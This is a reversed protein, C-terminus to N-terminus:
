KMQLRNSTKSRLVCRKLFIADFLFTEFKSTINDYKNSEFM